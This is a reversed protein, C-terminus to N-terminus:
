ELVEETIKIVIQKRNRWYDDHGDNKNRNTYEKEIVKRAEEESVFRNPHYMAHNADAIRFYIENKYISSRIVDTKVLAEARDKKTFIKKLNM